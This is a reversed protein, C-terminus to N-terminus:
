AAPGVVRGTPYILLVTIGILNKGSVMYLLVEHPEFCRVEINPPFNEGSPPSELYRFLRFGRTATTRFKVTQAELYREDHLLGEGFDSRLLIM